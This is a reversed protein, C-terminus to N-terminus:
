YAYSYTAEAWNKRILIKSILERAEVVVIAM